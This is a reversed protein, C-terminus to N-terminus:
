LAESDEGKLLLGQGPATPHHVRMNHGPFADSFVGLLTLRRLRCSIECVAVLFVSSMKAHFLVASVSDSILLALYLYQSVRM